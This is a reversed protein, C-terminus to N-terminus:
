HETRHELIPQISWWENMASYKAPSAVVNTRPGICGDQLNLYVKTDANANKSRITVISRPITVHAM